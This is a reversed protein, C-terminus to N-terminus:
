WNAHTPYRIELNCNPCKKHQSLPFESYCGTTKHDKDGCSVMCDGNPLNGCFWLVSYNPNNLETSTRLSM